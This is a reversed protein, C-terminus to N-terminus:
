FREWRLGDLLVLTDWATDAVDFVMLELTLTEGPVVPASASLWDTAGDAGFGTGDLPAGGGPCGSPCFDPVVFSTSVLNGNRDLAVDRDPPLDPASGEVIALFFENYTTCIWEPENASARGVCEHMMTPAPSEPKAAPHISLRAPQFTVM